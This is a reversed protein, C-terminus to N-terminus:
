LNIKGKIGCREGATIGHRRSEGAANEWPSKYEWERCDKGLRGKIYALWDKLWPSLPFLEQCPWRHHQHFADNRLESRVWGMWQVQCVSWRRRRGSVSWSETRWEERPAAIGERQGASKIGWGAVWLVSYGSSLERVEGRRQRWQSEFIIWPLAEQVQTVLIWVELKMRSAKGLTWIEIDLQGRLIDVFFNKIEGVSSKNRTPPWKLKRVTQHQFHLTMCETLLHQRSQRLPFVADLWEEEEAAWYDSAM